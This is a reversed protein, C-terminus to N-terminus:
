HGPHAKYGQSRLQCCVPYRDMPSALKLHRTSGALFFVLRKIDRAILHLWHHNTCAAGV